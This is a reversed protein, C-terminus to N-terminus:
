EPNEEYRKVSDLIEQRASASDGWGEIKVWKSNELDKYHTFFHTIQKLLVDPLQDYETVGRYDYCLQDEPVALVKADPGAEDSMKLVGIPRCPIVSGPVVPFPTPVMVDVPDGDESLSHPVYGYNAPYHMPASLFRDVLMAGSEKDVEYKVPDSHSSIEIIVNISEPINKGSSVLKFSM